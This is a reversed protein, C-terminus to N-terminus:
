RDNEAAEFQSHYLKAYEGGAALLRDHNGSEVIHGDRMVLIVDADRITSLRHAVIFSTRGKMLRGFADQVKLETRTDISSTAEDLILVPPQRLMVRAICLLQRQGESLSGGDEGIPTDYGQPLRSIFGHAHSARAATEIESDTADPKGMAINDRITGEALWTEQLVMGFNRRLSQRTLSRIDQGDVSVSGGNVDYFRMLLNILTTKGCGTPGVIAIRQGPSVNLTLGEILPREPVYSFSVNDLRIAGATPYELCAGDADSPEEAQDLLDFVRGACALAGQLEAVVGSIENFPKTYQNAYALFSALAGVTIGGGVATLAGCLAVSAYVLSNVFRTTPNTLSSFFIAKLSVGRLRRNSEDFRELMAEERGFAVTLRSNKISENVLATQKGRLESQSRFYKYTRGAIFKAVFLSVPTLLVVVATIGPHITLMFVLTGLITVVGTLLQSLGLLLGDAFGDSDTIIRSILEGTRHNDLYSLPLTTLKVFARYRTDRLVAYVVRNNIVSMLWHLVAAACACILISILNTKIIALDVEGAETAADIARGALIPIYLTFLASGAAFILSLILWPTHRGVARVARGLIRRREAPKMDNKKREAM